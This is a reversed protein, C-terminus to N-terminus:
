LYSFPDHSSVDQNLTGNSMKDYFLFKYAMRIHYNGHFIEYTWSISLVNSISCPYAFFPGYTLSIWGEPYDLKLKKKKKIVALPKSFKIYKLVFYNSLYLLQSSNYFYYM